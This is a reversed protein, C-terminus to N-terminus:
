KVVACAYFYKKFTSAKMAFIGNRNLPVNAYYSTQYPQWTGSLTDITAGYTGWPNRLVVYTTGNAYEWGLISYAHRAVVGTTSDYKCGAPAVSYTWAVMPNFAFKSCCNSRVFKVIEDTTKQSNYNYSITGGVLARCAVAPDGGTGIITYNPRDNEAATRWKAYAKEMVAPWIERADLSRAYKWDLTGSIVPVHETVEVYTLKNNADYFGIRHIPNEENDYSSPRLINAIAYPRSWAVSSLAAVFYCDGLGGQIPDSVEPVDEFYDGKDAWVMGSPYWPQPSAVNDAKGGDPVLAVSIRQKASEINLGKIRLEKEFKLQPKKALFREIRETAAKPTLETAKGDEQLEVQPVLIPLRADFIEDIPVNLIQSLTEEPKELSDWNISKGAVTEALAFPNIAYANNEVKKNDM